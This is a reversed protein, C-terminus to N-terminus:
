PGRFLNRWTRNRSRDRNIRGLPKLFEELEVNVPSDVDIQVTNDMDGCPKVAIGEFRNPLGAGGFRKVWARNQVYEEPDPKGIRTAFDVLQNKWRNTDEPFFIGGILESWDSNLPCLWCGVRTYGLRYSKNFHVNNLLLYLWVDFESWDIIPSATVQQGIKAGVTVGNLEDDQDVKVVVGM